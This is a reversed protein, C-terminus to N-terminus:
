EGDNEGDATSRSDEEDDSSGAEETDATQEVAKAADANKQFLLVSIVLLVAGVTICYDALNCVPNFFSLSLYDIVFGRFLRDILNGIGGGIVLIAAPYFLKGHLQRTVIVYIFGAILILTVAIFLWQHNQFMGFAVGRNEVYVLSFLNDIVTIHGDPALHEYVVYKVLQDAAAILASVVLVVTLVM